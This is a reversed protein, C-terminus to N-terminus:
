VNAATSLLATPAHGCIAFLLARITHCVSCKRQPFHATSEPQMQETEQRLQGM